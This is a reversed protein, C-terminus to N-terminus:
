EVLMGDQCSLHRDCFRLLGENHTVVLVTIGRQRLSTFCEMVRAASEKDLNGTPEDALLLTPPLAIARAIAVRQMEGVSLLRVTQDRLAQLGVECLAEESRAHAETRSIKTYRFRFLVNELVTRHPLLCFRQFVMGVRSKRLACLFEEDRDTVDEGEFLIRGSTPRELLAALNLLTTKGSGSPGTIMLFEGKRLELQIGRLVEQFGHSTPFAKTVDQMALLPIGNM